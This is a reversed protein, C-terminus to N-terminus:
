NTKKIDLHWYNSEFFIQKFENMCYSEKIKEKLKRKEAMASNSGDINGFRKLFRIKFESYNDATFSLITTANLLRSGAIIKLTYMNEECGKM